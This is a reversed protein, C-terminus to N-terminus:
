HSILVMRDIYWIGQITDNKVPLCISSRIECPYNPLFCNLVLSLDYNLDIKKYRKLLAKEVQFCCDTGPTMETKYTLGQWSYTLINPNDVRHLTLFLTHLICKLTHLLNKAEEELKNDACHM